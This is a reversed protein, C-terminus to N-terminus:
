AWHGQVNPRDATQMLGAQFHEIADEVTGSVGICVRVNATSLTRFAKPGMNGTLVAGVGLEIVNRAAQIGAGQVANLNQQNDHSSAEGTETDFVILYRARGFRPDLEDSLSKGQATVAIKM